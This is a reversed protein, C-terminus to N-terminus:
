LKNKGFTELVLFATSREVQNHIMGTYTSFIFLSLHDFNEAAETMGMTKNMEVKRQVNYVKFLGIKRGISAPNPLNFLVSTTSFLVLKAKLLIGYLVVRVTIRNRRIFNDFPFLVGWSWISSTRSPLKISWFREGSFLAADEARGGQCAIHWVNSIEFHDFALWVLKFTSMRVSIRSKYMTAWLKHEYAEPYLGLSVIVMTVVGTTKWSSPPSLRSIGAGIYTVNQWAFDTAITVNTVIM